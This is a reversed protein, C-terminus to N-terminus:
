APSCIQHPTGQVGEGAKAESDENTPTCGLEKMPLGASGSEFGTQSNSNLNEAAESFLCWCNKQKRQNRKRRNHPSTSRTQDEKQHVIHQDPPTHLSLSAKEGLDQHLGTEKAPTRPAICSNQNGRRRKILIMVCCIVITSFVTIVVLLIIIFGQVGEEGKQELHLAKIKRGQPHELLCCLAHRHNASFTVRSAVTVTGNRNQIYHIQPSEDLGREDLWTINPAPKGTASCVAALLGETPLHSDFEVTLESITQINLLIDKSFSGHRFVNFICRYYSEDEFTLNQLTIASAKSTGATFRVKKQFTGILRLGYISSYTAINQFFSGNIKQWTVQLVEMSLLFNCYLNAEGGFAALIVSDSKIVEKLGLFLSIM